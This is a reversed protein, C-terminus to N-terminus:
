KLINNILTFMITTVVQIYTYLGHKTLTYLGQTIDVYVEEMASSM